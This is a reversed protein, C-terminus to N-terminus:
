FFIHKFFFHVASNVVQQQTLIARFTIWYRCCFHWKGRIYPSTPKHKELVLSIRRKSTETVQGCIEPFYFPQVHKMKRSDNSTSLTPQHIFMVDKGKTLMIHLWQCYQIDRRAGHQGAKSNAFQNGPSRTGDLPYAWQPTRHAWQCWESSSPAWQCCSWPLSPSTLDNLEM